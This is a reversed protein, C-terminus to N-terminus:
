RDCLGRGTIKNGDYVVTVKTGEESSSFRLDNKTGNLITACGQILMIMPLLIVFKIM